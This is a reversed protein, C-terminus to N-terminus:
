GSCRSGKGAVLEAECLRALNSCGTHNCCHKSPLVAALAAGFATMQAGLKEVIASSLQPSPPEAATATNAADATSDPVATAAQYQSLDGLLQVGQLVLKERAAGDISSSSSSSGEIEATSATALAVTDTQDEPAWVFGPIFVRMSWEVAASSILLLAQL